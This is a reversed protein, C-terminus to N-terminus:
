GDAKHDPVELVLGAVTVDHLHRTKRLGSFACEHQEDNNRLEIGEIDCGLM